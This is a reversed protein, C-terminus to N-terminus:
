AGPPNDPNSGDRCAQGRTIISPNLLGYRVDQGYNQM